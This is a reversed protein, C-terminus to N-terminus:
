GEQLPAFMEDMQKVEQIFHERIQDYNVWKENEWVWNGATPNESHDGWEKPVSLGINESLAGFTEAARDTGCFLYYCMEPDDTPRRLEDYMRLEEGANKVQLDLEYQICECDDDFETGDFAIYKEIKVM